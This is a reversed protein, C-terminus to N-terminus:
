SADDLAQRIAANHDPALELLQLDGFFTKSFDNSAKSKVGVLTLLDRHDVGSKSLMHTPKYLDVARAINEEDMM